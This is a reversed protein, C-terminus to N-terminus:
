NPDVEARTFAAILERFETEFIDYGKLTTAAVGVRTTGGKSPDVRVHLRAPVLVLSIIVGALLVFAGIGVFLVGPDYRYQLGTFLVYRQPTVVWGNGLSVTHRLPVLTEGIPQGASTAALVVAPNNVRPDPSPLHTRPDVTPVFQAFQVAISTGTLTFASGPLYTRQSLARMIRGRHKILFRMGFGYSSQYYLTGNVNIPHNVRITMPTPIGNKGTVTVHSVYDIPEYVVGSKTMIPRISYRFRDLKIIAHTQPIEVAQGTLVIADGAFGKWWYLTTGVAIIVFGIHAVLVGRRAWDHKDAFTWETGDFDRKRLLWGRKRFFAEVRQRVSAEDGPVDIMAHLPIMEIKVPNLPPMRAPIVRKFTAVTLSTLILAIIGIYWPSHYINTFDLRLMGRALPAAFNAFYYSPDEGQKVVVGILTFIGWVSFLSVAFLVSSFTRLFDDYLARLHM